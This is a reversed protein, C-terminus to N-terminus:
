LQTFTMLIPIKYSGNNMTSYVNGGINTNYGSFGDAYVNTIPNNNPDLLIGDIEVLFSLNFNSLDMSQMNTVDDQNNIRGLSVYENFLENRHNYLSNYLSNIFNNTKNQGDPTQQDLFSDNTIAARAAAHGFVRLAIIQFLEDNFIGTKLGTSVAPGLTVANWTNNVFADNLNNLNINIDFLDANTGNQIYSINFYTAISNYLTISYDVNYNIVQPVDAIQANQNLHIWENIIFSPYVDYIPTLQVHSAINQKRPRWISNLSYYYYLILNFDNAFINDNTFIPPNGTFIISIFSTCNAFANDNIQTVSSPISITTLSTCNEFAGNGITTINPLSISTLSTCNKFINNELIILSDPLTISNLSTCYEFVNQGLTIINYPIDISTLSTCHSFMYDSFSTLGNSLTIATLQNCNMFLNTGINTVNDNIIITTLSTCNAFAFNNITTLYYPLELSVLSSCGDFAHEDIIKLNCSLEWTITTLSTCNYFTYAPISTLYQTITVSSLSTCNKFVSNGLTINNNAPITATIMNNCNMFANDEITTIASNSLFTISNIYQNANTTNFANSSISTIYVNNNPNRLPITIDTATTLITELGTIIKGTIDYTFSVM